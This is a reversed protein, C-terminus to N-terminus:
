NVDILNNVAKGNMTRVHLLYRGSKMFGVDVSTEFRYQGGVCYEAPDLEVIPLIVLVDNQVQSKVEKLKMCRSPFNGSLFVKNVSGKSQFYAQSVSAYMYDDPEKTKSAHINVKGVTQNDTIISYNGEKLIGVDVVRDFPMMVQICVGPYKYVETNLRITKATHDVTVATTAYRYCPNPFMGEGVIQVNDNNDFGDPIYVKGFSIQVKTPTNDEAKAQIAFIIAIIAFTTSILKMKGGLTFQKYGYLVLM